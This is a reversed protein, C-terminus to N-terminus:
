ECELIEPSPEGYTLGYGFSFLPGDCGTRDGINNINLPLQDASRPWTYPLKGTFPKEGFLVDTVGAGESGFWWTAVIADANPLIGTLNVPRGSVVIVVVKEARERMESVADVDMFSLLLKDSDGVGEAYPKEGVVVIGVDALGTEDKFRGDPDYVLRTDPGITEQLAEFISTGATENGGVGQWQLTWGGTQM